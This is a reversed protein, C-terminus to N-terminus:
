HYPKYRYDIYIYVYIIYINYIYEYINNPKGTFNVVNIPFVSIESFIRSLSLLQYDFGSIYIYVVEIVLWHYDFV